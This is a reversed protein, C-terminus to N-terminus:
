AAERATSGQEADSMDSAREVGFDVGVAMLDREIAARGKSERRVELVDFQERTEFLPWEVTSVFPEPFLAQAKGAWKLVRSQYKDDLEFRVKNTLVSPSGRVFLVASNLDLQELQTPTMLPENRWSYNQSSRAGFGFGSGGTSLQKVPRQGLSRAVDEATSHDGMALFLKVDCNGLLMKRGPGGYRLDLQSINQVIFAIQFGYGAVLPSREVIETMRGYQYFEDLLLLVRHPEDRGPMSRLLQSHAQDVFLRIVRMMTKVDPAPVGLYVTFPKRRMQAIDFDSTNTAEAVLVNNWAKLDTTIHGEFDQQQKERRGIHQRFTDLIFPNLTPEKSVILGLYEGFNQGTSLMRLATRITRRGQMPKSECVYGLIGALLGVATEAWFADKGEPVEILAGAINLLDTAREPWERVFDLPNWSHSLRSGPAFVYVDQGMAARAPAIEAFTELKMDFLILSGRWELANTKVFSEGKGSRTPGNVYIHSPGRYRVEQGGAVYKDGSHKSVPGRYVKPSGGVTGLFISHGPRGDMLGAKELDRRTAWAAGGRPRPNSVRERSAMIGFTALACEMAALGVALAAPKKTQPDSWYNWVDRAPYLIDHDVWFIKLAKWQKLLLGVALVYNFSLLLFILVLVLAVAGAILAMRGRKPLNWFTAALGGDHTKATM